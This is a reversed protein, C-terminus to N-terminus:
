IETFVGLFPHYFYQQISNKYYSVSVEGYTYPVKYLEIGLREAIQEYQLKENINFWAFNNKGFKIEDYHAIHRTEVLKSNNYDAEDRVYWVLKDQANPLLIFTLEPSSLRFPQQRQIEGTWTVQQQWWIKANNPEFPKTKTNTDGTLKYWYASQELEVLNHYPPKIPPIVQISPIANISQYQESKLTYTISKDGDISYKQSEFGPKEYVIQKGKLTKYNKDLIFLNEHQVAQKRHRQLRGALQVLSRMSSPEAIAWDYDHDRGVECVSTALIVFIHHKAEPNQNIAETIEAQQWIAEPQKRNLLKDLKEEISSRSALTFQSHYVCYHICYDDTNDRAILKEAVAVLPKINAFRVVGLSICYKGNTQHNFHHAEFINQYITDSLTDIANEKDAIPIVKAKRLPQSDKDLRAIRNKVFQHHSKLFEGMDQTQLTQTAFEDFWACVIPPQQKDAVMCQHYIKRGEKYAEFLGYAMAPPITASSLLVKAGLMGAWNVLRALAPLDALGFEDPEDLVLDGSLLRLMPAIQKGGRLGETAPILYDITSVLIPAHLLKQYKPDNDFWKALLTDKEIQIEEDYDIEFDNDLELSESGRLALATKELNELLEKQEQILPDNKNNNANLLRLIAKSGILTAIESDDLHLNQQLSQGTQTTLTRLGLAISFRCGKNDNALAYMIRANAFTKGKGTSAMNIGFFGGEQSPKNLKKSLTVTKDQWESLKVDANDFGRELTRNYDLTPLESLFKPLKQSFQYAHHAVMLNHEDLHQKLQRDSDTNAYALYTKDWFHPTANQASYYHDAMMLTMRALHQTLLDNQWSFKEISALSRKATHAFETAKQQWTKSKLPLGLSFQWNIQKEEDTWEKKVFNPSNWKIDCDNLWNDALNDFELSPQHQEFYPYVLLRHHSVILWAVLKTFDDFAKFNVDNKQNTLNNRHEARNIYDLVSTEDIQNSNALLDLWAQYPRNQVFAEFLKFSVWEHRYPEYTKAGKEKNPNLKKQFLDNAKGFDHFLGAISSAIAVLELNQWLKSDQYASIEKQTRNVAVIGQENFKKRNGVVWVLETRQRTRVRHCSVATSRTASAKLLKKVTDLGDETIATQWVNDGIRNAFADLIRRTRNLAKKECQSIFTVLM